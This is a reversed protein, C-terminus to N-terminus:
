AFKIKIIHANRYTYMVQLHYLNTIAKVIALGLGTSGGEKTEKHFRDFIKEGDLMDPKGTNTVTLEDHALEVEVTGQPINHLIANKVLNAILIQALDANMLSNLTGSERVSIAVNRFAAFDEFENVITKALNNINVRVDEKFQRNEIKSLLLLSKNLRTLRELTQIVSGVIQMDSESLANKEALLELKNISIALPTQLEHAANEIFERQSEYTERTRAILSDVTENLLTFEEVKSEKVTIPKNKELRFTKLQGILHYFPRWIRKLLYNNFLLISVLMALYLWIIASLLDSILDDEEVMSSIVNLQYYRGKREFATTLIRVPEYDQENIMFLLTDRYYDHAHTATYQSLERISYNSEEFETKYLVTSDKEAKQIILMKYNDLGDDLSDYVEDLMNVYFIFAWVGIILLLALSFYKTTYNLLKM